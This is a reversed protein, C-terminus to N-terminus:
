RSRVRSLRKANAAVTRYGPKTAADAVALMETPMHELSVAGTGMRFALKQLAAGAEVAGSFGAIVKETWARNWETATKTTPSGFLLPLRLSITLAADTGAAASAAVSKAFASSYRKPM